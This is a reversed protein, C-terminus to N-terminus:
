KQLCQANLVIFILKINNTQNKKLKEGDIIKNLEYDNAFLIECTRGNGDHFPNIDNLFTSYSKVPMIKRKNFQDIIQYLKGEVLDKNMYLKGFRYPKVNIKKLTIKNSGTIINNIGKLSDITLYM